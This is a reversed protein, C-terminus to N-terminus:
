VEMSLVNPKMEIGWSEVEYILAEFLNAQLEEDTLAPTMQKDQQMYNLMEQYSFFLSKELQKSYVILGTPMEEIPIMDVKIPDAGTIFASVVASINSEMSMKIDM